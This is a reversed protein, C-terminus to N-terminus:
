VIREFMRTEIQEGGTGLVQFRYLYKGAGINLPALPIQHTGPAYARNEFVREVENGREDYLTLTVTCNSAATFEIASPSLPNPFVLRSTFTTAV